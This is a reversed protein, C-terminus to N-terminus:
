LGFMVLSLYAVPLTFLIADIRDLAGGHGPFLTGMDKIALDRKILSELLDGLPAAISVLVAFVAAQAFNWPGLLPAVATVLIMTGATAVLAGERTKKPSIEPALPTKGFRSGGAYAFIDYFATAGIVAIIVPGGDEPRAALLGAFSGLLPVYAVGFITVAIDSLLDARPEVAIYWILCFLITLFMVLGAADPGKLFVGILLVAGAALGLSTAPDYGASRTSKYFEGQAFIIVVFALGFFAKSSVLAFGIVLAALALGTAIAIKLNRGPVPIPPTVLTPPADLRETPQEAEPQEEETM